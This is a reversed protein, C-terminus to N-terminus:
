RLIRLMAEVVDPAFHTGSEDELEAIALEPSLQGRYPRDEVMARYADCAALIRGGLPIEEGTLGDPYGRGDWREHHSRVMAAAQELGGIRALVAAGAAPHVRMAAWEHDRLPGPKHLIADRVAIKGVDHLRAAVELQRLEESDMGLERGVRCALDSVAEAHGAVDGDHLAVAAAMGAVAGELWSARARLSPYPERGFRSRPRTQRSEESV